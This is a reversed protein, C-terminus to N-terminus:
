NTYNRAGFIATGFDVVEGKKRKADWIKYPSVDAKQWPNDVGQQKLAIARGVRPFTDEWVSRLGMFTKKTYLERLSSVTDPNIGSQKALSNKLREFPGEKDRSFFVNTKEVLSDDANNKSLQVMVSEPTAFSTQNIKSLKEAKDEDWNNYM